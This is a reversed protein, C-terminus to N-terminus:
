EAVTLYGSALVAQVIHEAIMELQNLHRHSVEFEISAYRGDAFRNRLNTTIGDDLGTYPENIRCDLGTTKLHDHVLKTIPGDGIHNPDVLLGIDLERVQGQYNDTFSHVGLHLCRDGQKFITEIHNEVESWYPTHYRTKRLAIMEQSLKCNGPVDVGFAHVPVSEHNDPSRNLDAVLRSYEGTVIPAKLASALYTGVEKAGPDWAVHSELIENSLGLDGLESPIANSAHEISVLPRWNM